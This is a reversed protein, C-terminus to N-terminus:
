AAQGGSPSRALIPVPDLVTSSGAADVVHVLPMRGVIGAARPKGQDEQQASLTDSTTHVLASVLPSAAYLYFLIHTLPKRYMDMCM